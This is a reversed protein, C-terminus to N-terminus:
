ILRFDGADVCAQVLKPGACTGIEGGDPLTVGQAINVLKSLKTMQKIKPTVYKM